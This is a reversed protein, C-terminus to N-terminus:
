RSSGQQHHSPQNHTTQIRAVLFGIREDIEDTARTFATHSDGPETAPDAISWHSTPPRGHMEPCVERVRDCLTVVHDFRTRRHATLHSSSRGSIDIGREAMVQVAMPHLPKPHSGASRAEITGASHVEMLAQAIQSRASNGTCVFLVRPRSRHRPAGQPAQGAPGARHLRPALGPHLAAAVEVLLTRCRALELRYYTDRGDASSRRASVLGAERLERLHYSVLNQPRDLATCLEGVRLDSAALETLLSWRLPEAALPLFLPPMGM